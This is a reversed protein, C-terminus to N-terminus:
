DVARPKSLPHPIVLIMKSEESCALLDPIIKSVIHTKSLKKNKSMRQIYLYVNAKKNLNKNNL